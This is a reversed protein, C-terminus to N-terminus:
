ESCNAKIKALYQMVASEAKKNQEIDDSYLASRLKKYLEIANELSAILSIKNYEAITSKLLNFDEPNLQTEVKRVGRPLNKNNIHLLPGFVVM